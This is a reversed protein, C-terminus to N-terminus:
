WGPRAHVAHQLRVPRRARLGARALLRMADVCQDFLDALEGPEPRVPGAAARGARGADGIFELMLETGHLQVPYPVPAGASWLRGLAAFEACPGSGPSCSAASRRHAPAMARTERSRRVRRGETYGADRHFM